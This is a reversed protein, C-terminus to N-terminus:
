GVRGNLRPDSVATIDGTPAIATGATVIIDGIHAISDGTRATATGAISDGTRAIVMIIDGIHATSATPMGGIIPAIVTSAMSARDGTFQAIAM